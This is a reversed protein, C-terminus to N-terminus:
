LGHEEIARREEERSVVRDTRLMLYGKHRVLAAKPSTKVLPTLRIAGGPLPLVDFVTGPRAAKGLAVRSKDDATAKM